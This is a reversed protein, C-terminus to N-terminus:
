DLGKICSLMREIHEAPIRTKFYSKTLDKPYHDIPESAIHLEQLNKIFIEAVRDFNITKDAFNGVLFYPLNHFVPTKKYNIVIGLVSFFTHPNFHKIILDARDKRYDSEKQLYNNFWNSEWIKNELGMSYALKLVASLTQYKKQKLYPINLCQNNVFPEMALVAKCRHDLKANNVVLFGFSVGGVIYEKVNLESIKKDFYDSFKRLTIPDKLAPSDKHFGPLDIFHVTFFDAMFEELGHLLVSNTPFSHVLVLHPKTQSM